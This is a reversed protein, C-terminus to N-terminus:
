SGSPKIAQRAASALTILQRFVGGSDPDNRLLAFAGVVVGPGLPILLSLMLSVSIVQKAERAAAAFDWSFWCGGGLLVLAVLYLVWTFAMRQAKRHVKAAPARKLEPNAEIMKTAVTQTFNDKM